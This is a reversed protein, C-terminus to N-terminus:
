QPAHWHLLLGPVTGRNCDYDITQLQRFGLKELVRRSATNVAACRGVMTSIGLSEAAFGLIETMAETTYGRGWACRKLNYGIEFEGFEEEWDILGTGLLEGSVRDCIAWRYWDAAAIRSLEGTLWDKTKAFDHHSQWLMYKAVEADQEWGEFVALADGPAFPRLHLRATWLEPTNM